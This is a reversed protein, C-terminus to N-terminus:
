TKTVTGPMTTYHNSCVSQANSKMTPDYWLNLFHYNSIELKSQLGTNHDYNFHICNAEFVTITRSCKCKYIIDDDLFYSMPHLPHSFLNEKHLLHLTCLLNLFLARYTQFGKQLFENQALHHLGTNVKQLKQCFLM